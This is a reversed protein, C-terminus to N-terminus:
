STFLNNFSFFKTEGPCITILVDEVGNCSFPLVFVMRTDSTFYILPKIVALALGLGQEEYITLLVINYLVISSKRKGILAAKNLIVGEASKLLM